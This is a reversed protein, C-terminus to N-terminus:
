SFSPMLACNILFLHHKSSDAAVDARWATQITWSCSLYYEYLIIAFLQQHQQLQQCFCRGKADDDDDDAAAAAARGTRTALCMKKRCSPTVLLVLAAALAQGIRICVAGRGCLM